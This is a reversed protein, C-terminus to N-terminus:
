APISHPGTETPLGAEYWGQKGEPYTSVNTYGLETLRRAVYGSNRCAANSCYVVLPAHKDPLREAALADVQSAPLNVAGPLHMDEFHRASLAEVPTVEGLRALLEDRTIPGAGAHPTPSTTMVPRYPNSRGPSDLPPDCVPGCNTATPAMTADSRPIHETDPPCCDDTTSPRTATRAALVAAGVIAGLALATAQWGLDQVWQSARTSMEDLAGVPGGTDGPEANLNWAWYSVLYGGALILLAGSARGGAGNGGRAAVLVV